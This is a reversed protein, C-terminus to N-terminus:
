KGPVCRCAVLNMAIMTMVAEGRQNLVEIKSRLIGRDPKSSSRRAELVTVRAHLVDEPRVPALWRVEDLGPSSLSANRTLYHNTYMRMMLACTLWGSAILGGFRSRAAKVPDTHFDQPDYRRAFEIIEQETVLAEGFEHVAGPLYDELYRDDIPGAFKDPAPTQRDETM